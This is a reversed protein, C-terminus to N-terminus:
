RILLRITVHFWFSIQCRFVNDIAFSNVFASSTTKSFCARFVRFFQIVLTLLFFEFLFCIQGNGTSL